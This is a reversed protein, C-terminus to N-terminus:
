FLNRSGISSVLESFCPHHGTGLLTLPGIREAPRGPPQRARPSPLLGPGARCPRCRDPRALPRSGSRSEGHAEYPRARLAVRGAHRTGPNRARRRKPFAACVRASGEPGGLDSSGGQTSQSGVAGSVHRRRAGRLLRTRRQGRRRAKPLDEGRLLIDVDKTTRVASPDKTAVWLAVAQGGVLAYEVGASEFAGVIRQLRDTVEDLAMLYREWLGTSLPIASASMPM